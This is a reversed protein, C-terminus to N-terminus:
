VTKLSEYFSRLDHRSFEVAVAFIAGMCVFPGENEFQSLFRHHVAVVQGGDEARLAAFGHFLQWRIRLFTCGVIPKVTMAIGAVAVFVTEEEDIQRTFRDHVFVVQGGDKAGFASFLHFRKVLIGALRDIESM